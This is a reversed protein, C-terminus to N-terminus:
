QESINRTVVVDIGTGLINRVVVDGIKVPAKLNIMSVEQIIARLMNKAVPRNTKVPAYNIVGDIKVTTTVTRTPNFIEEEAYDSGRLCHNNTVSLIKHDDYEVTMGCGLPCCICVFDKKIM